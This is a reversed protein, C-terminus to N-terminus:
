NRKGYDKDRKSKNKPVPDVMIVKQHLTRPIIIYNARGNFRNRWKDAGGDESYQATTGDHKAVKYILLKGSNTSILLTTITAMINNKTM